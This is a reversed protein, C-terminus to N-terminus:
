HGQWAEFRQKLKPLNDRWFGPDVGCVGRGRNAPNAPSVALLEPTLGDNLGKALGSEGSQQLLHLEVVPMGTFYLFQQAMRLMLSGKATAWGHVEIRSGASQLGLIRTTRAGGHHCDSWEACQDDAGMALGPYTRGRDRNVVLRYLTQTPRAQSLSPGRRGRQFADQLCGAMSAVGDAMLAFELNGRVGKRLGRKGPYKAVDWFDSWTPAVPLKDKDWALVTTSLVAGLGCDSVAPPQYHDKGGIASWDLKEFLGEGCGTALEEADVLVLDWTNDSAKVQARLTDIGGEWIQQQVSTGTIGTFPQVFASEIARQLTEDRTVITLDNPSASAPQPALAPAVLLAVAALLTRVPM